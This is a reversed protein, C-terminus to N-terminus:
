KQLNYRSTPFYSGIKGKYGPQMYPHTGPSPVYTQSPSAAKKPPAVAGGSRVRRLAHNVLNRDNGNTFSLTPTYDTTTTDYTTNSITNVSSGNWIMNFFPLSNGDPNSEWNLGDTSYYLTAGEGISGSIIWQTGMWVISLPLFFASLPNITWNKGDSSAFTFSNSNFVNSNDLSACIAIWTTGNFAVDTAIFHSYDSDTLTNIEDNNTDYLTAPTWNIGDDSWAILRSPLLDNFTDINNNNNYNFIEGSISFGVAVCFNGNNALSTGVQFINSSTDPLNTVTSIGAQWTSGNANSSYGFSNPGSGTGVWVNGNWLLGSKVKIPAFTKLNTFIASSNEVANWSSGGDTSYILTNTTGLSGEEQTSEGMVVINNNNKAATVALDFFGGSAENQTWDKGDPSTAIVGNGMDIGTSIWSSGTWINDLAIMNMTSENWTIGDSSWYNSALSGVLIAEYTTIPTQITKTTSYNFSGKGVSNTRRNVTVQSADRNASWKKQAPAQQGDFVTPRIRHMNMFGSMGFNAPKLAALVQATTLPTNYTREYIKRSLEFTSTADSTSDKLPMAKIASLSGNNINQQIFVPNSM